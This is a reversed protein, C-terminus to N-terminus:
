CCMRPARGGGPRRAEATSWRPCPSGRGCSCHLWAKPPGSSTAWSPLCTWASILCRRCGTQRPKDLPRQQQRQRQKQALSRCLPLGGAATSGKRVCANRKGPSSPARNRPPTVCRSRYRASARPRMPTACSGEGGARRRSRRSPSCLGLRVFGIDLVMRKRLVPRQPSKVQSARASSRGFRVYVFRVASRSGTPLSRPNRPVGDGNSCIFGITSTLDSFCVRFPSIMVGLTPISLYAGVPHSAFRNCLGFQHIGEAYYKESVAQALAALCRKWSRVCFSGFCSGLRFGEVVYLAMRAAMARLFDHVVSTCPLVENNSHMITVLATEPRFAAVVEEASVRGEEDVGVYTVDVRGEAALHNLCKTIAPHEIASSVVHQVPANRGTDSGNPASSPPAHGNSSPPAVTNAHLALQFNLNPRPHLPLM